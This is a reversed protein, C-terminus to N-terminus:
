VLPAPEFELVGKPCRPDRDPSFWLLFFACSFLGRGNNGSMVGGRAKKISKISCQWIAKFEQKANEIIIEKIQQVKILPNLTKPNRLLELGVQLVPIGSQCTTKTFNRRKDQTASVTKASERSLTLCM